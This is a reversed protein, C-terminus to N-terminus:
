ATETYNFVQFATCLVEGVAINSCDANINPNNAKLTADSIRAAAEISPCTDNSNVVATTTCDQGVIGLCLEEGPFLNTCDSNIQTNVFSLQFNSVHQAAGIANCTDGVAVTYTRACDSQTLVAPLLSMALAASVFIQSFM